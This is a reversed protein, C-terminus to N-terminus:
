PTSELKLSVFTNDLVKQQNYTSNKLFSEITEKGRLLVLCKGILYRAIGNWPKEMTEWRRVSEGLRIAQRWRLDSTVITIGALLRHLILLQVWGM